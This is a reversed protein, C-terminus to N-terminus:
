SGHSGVPKAARRGLFESVPALAEVHDCFIKLTALLPVAIFAGPLGWIWYWFALGAFLAVPNLALKHGLLLPSVVNTQVLSIVAYAAPVLLAQGVDDMTGLAAIALIITMAAAGLYPVFELVAALVGWLLPNPMGLGWMALAVVAGEAVHHATLMVLYTSVSHEIDRAIRVAKKKDQLAPLVNVLKELFLDGAALLFYLLTLIEIGNFAIAGASGLLRSGLSPARVEVVDHSSAADGAVASAASEVAEATDTMKNISRVLGRLKRQASNLAQPTKEVWSQVPTALGYVGLAMVGVIGAIILFAGVPPPIRARKLLRIVPSFLFDLLIAVTIPILFGRAFYLTYLLALISLIVLAASRAQPSLAVHVTDAIDAEPKPEADSDTTQTTM